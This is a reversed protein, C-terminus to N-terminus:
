RPFGAPLHGPALVGDAPFPRGDLTKYLGPRLRPGYTPVNTDTTRKSRLVDLKERLDTVQSAHKMRTKLHVTSSAGQVWPLTYPDIGSPELREGNEGIRLPLDFDTM